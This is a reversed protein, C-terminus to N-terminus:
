AGLFLYAAGLAFGAVLLLYYHHALGTQLRRLDAGAMGALRGAGDPILDSAAEGRRSAAAALRCTARVVGGVAGQWTRAAGSWARDATGPPMGDLIEDDIRAARRAVTGFSVGLALDDARAAARAAAEFPRVLVRDVVAPLGLWDAAPPEGPRRALRLGALLGLAVATLSLALGLPTGEPLPAGLLGAAADHVPALWLTSLLLTAGSLLALAAVSGREPRAETRAGAGFAFLAFRAAYAASLGGAAIGALAWWPGATELAKVVQEKSWGGAFAPAGALSLAAVATLAAAWPMARGLRMRRLDFSGTEGHAIGAAFFLPAKMAAHVVLHLVAIGPYGAGVAAIMLGLQASTSGALLKKAHLQRVAVAGGLLATALGVALAATGFGPAQSLQPHLRALLFAGAAVMAASHLLASVSTPGDMARFLWPSFPLQGAKAAAAVLIGFAALALPVGQLDGLADYSTGGSAAFTAFLALFLGLDGARTMVFAYSASAMPAEDRWRHGILAWSCAGVLEWGILLTVLDGAVVVLEMGGVFVLLLGILRALGREAEHAAAFVLVAAAVAPVTVAVPHSLPVLGAQLVITESWAIRGSWEGAALALALTATAAGAGLLGLRLRSGRLGLLDHAWLALGALAPVLPLLWITGEGTM